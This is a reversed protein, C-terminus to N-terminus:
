GYTTHCQCQCKATNVVLPHCQDQVVALLELMAWLVLLYVEIAVSVHHLQPSETLRAGTAVPSALSVALPLFCVTLAQHFSVLLLHDVHHQSFMNHDATLPLLAPLRELLAEQQM